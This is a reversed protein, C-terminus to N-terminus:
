LNGQPVIDYLDEKKLGPFFPQIYPFTDQHNFYAIKPHNRGPILHENPLENSASNSSRPFFVEIDNMM